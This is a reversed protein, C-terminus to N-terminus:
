PESERRPRGQGVRTVPAPSNDGRAPRQHKHERHGGNRHDRKHRAGKPSADKRPDGKRHEGTQTHESTHPEKGMWPITQGILKEIAAVSRGDAPAVIPIAPGGAGGGGAGGSAHAWTSRA